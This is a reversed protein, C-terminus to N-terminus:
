LLVTVKFILSFGLKHYIYPYSGYSYYNFIELTCNHARHTFQMLLYTVMKTIEINSQISLM